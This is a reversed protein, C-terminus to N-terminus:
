DCVDKFSGSGTCMEIGMSCYFWFHLNVKSLEGNWSNAHKENRFLVKKVRILIAMFLEPCKKVTKVHFRHTVSM